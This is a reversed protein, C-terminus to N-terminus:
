HDKWIVVACHYNQLQTQHQQEGLFDGSCGSSM